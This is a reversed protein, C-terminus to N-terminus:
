SGRLKSRQQARYCLYSGSILLLVAVWFVPLIVMNVRFHLFLLSLVPIFFSLATILARNGQKLAIFWCLYGLSTPGLIMYLLDPNVAVASLHLSSLQGKVILICLFVLGSLMFIVPIGAMDDQSQYKVTLNSYLAWSVSTLFALAYALLNDDGSRILGRISGADYDQLLALSIGAFSLIMGPIFIKLPTKLRFLPIRLLYIMVPWTYNLLTVVVLEENKRALGVALFLLVNNIMFFIGTKWYYSLPLNKLKNVFDTKRSLALMSIFLVLGSFFYIYFAGSYIGEQDLANKSFAINSAWLLIALIGALTALFYKSNHRKGSIM